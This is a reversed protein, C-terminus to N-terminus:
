STANLLSTVSDIKLGPGFAFVSTGSMKEQGDSSRAVWDALVTGQCHRISGKRELGIGPMFRQAAGTHAVLDDIGDLRSYRDRFRVKRAAIRNLTAERAAADPETWLGFWADVVDPAGANVYNAVANAFLSFHFRWGQVLQEAVVADAVEHTVRVLTGAEQQQLRITVRSEEAPIPRESQLSFTFVFREPAAIELVEGESVFGNSHQIRLAGGPRPDVTSGAGWWTAWRASDTFFGFVTERDAEILISRDVSYSLSKM